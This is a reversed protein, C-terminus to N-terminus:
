RASLMRNSQVRGILKKDSIRRLKIVNAKTAVENFYTTSGTLKISVSIQKVSLTNYLFQQGYRHIGQDLYTNNFNSAINRNVDTTVAHGGLANFAEIWDVENYKISIGTM